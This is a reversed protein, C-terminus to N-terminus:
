EREAHEDEEKTEIYYQYHNFDPELEYQYDKITEFAYKNFLLMLSPSVVIKTITKGKKIERRVSRYIKLYEKIATALNNNKM